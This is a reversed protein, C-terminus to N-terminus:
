LSYTWPIGPISYMCINYIYPVIQLSRSFERLLMADKAPINSVMLFTYETSGQVTMRMGMCRNNLAYIYIYLIPRFILSLNDSSYM